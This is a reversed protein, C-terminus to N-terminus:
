PAIAAYCGVDARDDITRGAGHLMKRERGPRLSTMPLDATAVDCTKVLASAAVVAVVEGDGDTGYPGIMIAFVVLFRM